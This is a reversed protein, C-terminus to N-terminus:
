MSERFRHYDGAAREPAELAPLHGVGPVMAVRAHPILRKLVVAAAPDIARDKEGFVVLTPTKLGAIRAELADVSVQAFIKEELTAHAARRRAIVDQLFRPIPPPRVMVWHVLADFEDESRAVLPNRGTERITRRLESEPASRIGAPDLLWLSRVERPHLAAWTLAIQGGMSSGGADVAGLGIAKCFARVREAQAPPSYDGDPALSSEGFGPLDPAIVRYHPTLYRAVLTFNDKDAGFGHLLVLPEGRGGDLYAIRLGGPLDVERRVVGAHLREADLAIALAVQPVLFRLAAAVLIVALVFALGARFVVRM